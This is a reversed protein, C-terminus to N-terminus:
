LTMDNCCLEHISCTNMTYVHLVQKAIRQDKYNIRCHRTFTRICYKYYNGVPTPGSLGFIFTLPPYPTKVCFICITEFATLICWANVTRTKMKKPLKLYRWLFCNVMRTKMKKATGFRKFYWWFAHKLFMTKLVIEETGFRKLYRWLEKNANNEVVVFRCKWITEFRTPICAKSANNEHKEQLELDNWIGDSQM